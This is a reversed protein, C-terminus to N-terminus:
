KAVHKLMIACNAAESDHFTEERPTICMSACLLIQSFTIGMSRLLTRIIAASLYGRPVLEHNRYAFPPVLICWPAVFRAVVIEVRQGEVHPDVVQSPLHQIRPPRLERSWQVGISSHRAFRISLGCLIVRSLPQGSLTGSVCLRICRPDALLLPTVDLETLFELLQISPPFTFQRSALFLGVGCRALEPLRVIM